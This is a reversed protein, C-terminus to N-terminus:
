GMIKSKVSEYVKSIQTPDVKAELYAGFQRKYDDTNDKLTVAYSEIHKGMVRDNSPFHDDSAHINLKSDVVGKVVAFLRSQESLKQLGVDVIAEEVGLEKAKKGLLLGTLYATPINGNVVNLGFKKLDMSRVTALIKDGDAEYVVIQAIISRLSRRVVLRPMRSKLLHLRQKYDTKGERKRRFAVNYKRTTAM